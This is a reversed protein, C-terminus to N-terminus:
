QTHEQLLLFQVEALLRPLTTTIIEWVLPNEIFDYGHALRNRFAIVQRPETVQELVAPETRELRLLAEGINEYSREVALRMTEDAEYDALTRGNTKRLIYSCAHDIDELLTWSKPQFM